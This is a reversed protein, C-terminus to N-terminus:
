ENKHIMKILKKHKKVFELYPVIFEKRMFVFDSPKEITNNSFNFASLFDENLYEITENLLDDVNEYHLYFTSRNVGAAVCIEKITIFELDKKQLLNLLAQNMLKATNKYKSQAKDM